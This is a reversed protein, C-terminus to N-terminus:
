GKAPRFRLALVYFAMALFVLANMGIVMSLNELIGGFFAGFLNAGFAFSVNSIKSFSSSFLLGSFFIPLAIFFGALLFKTLFPEGSFSSAHVFYGCLLSVFLGSSITWLPIRVGRMVVLNAIFAMSLIGFIVVSNVIWTSGFLLALQSISKTEILLFAAGLFFFHWYEFKYTLLPYFIEKGIFFYVIAFFVLIVLFLTGLYLLPISPKLLYLYPWDDTPIRIKAEAPFRVVLDKVDPDGLPALNLASGIIFVGGDGGSPRKFVLPEYGFTQELMASIRALIWPEGAAFSLVLTGGEKLHSKAAKFSEITYVYNDLRINSFASAATHSDLLGYVITDYQNDNKEFFSRADDVYVNVKESDYPKEPHFEKGLEILKPDIEVADVQSANHRLAAAVDNGAGAGVILTRGANNIFKYPLNYSDATTKLGSDPHKEFFGASYDAMHQHYAHNVNLSYYFVGSSVSDYVKKMEIRYYPSWYAVSVGGATVVLALVAAALSRSSPPYLMFLISFGVLLWWFPSLQFFSLVTFMIVGTISGLLDISYAKLSKFNKLQEHIIEGIGFFTIFILTIFLVVCAAYIFNFFLSVMLSSRFANFGSESSGWIWLDNGQTPIPIDSISLFPALALIIAFGAIVYVLVPKISAKKKELMVGLGLGLFAMILPINKLFSFIRIESSVWRIVALEMFLALCTSLFLKVSDKKLLEAMRKKTKGLIIM